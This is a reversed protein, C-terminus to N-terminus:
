YMLESIVTELIDTWSDVYQRKEQGLFLNKEWRFCKLKIHIKVYKHKCVQTNAKWNYM